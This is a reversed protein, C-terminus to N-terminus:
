SSMTMDKLVGMFIHTVQNSEDVFHGVTSLGDVITKHKLLYDTIFLNGKQLDHPQCKLENM